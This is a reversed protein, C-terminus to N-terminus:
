TYKKSDFKKLINSILKIQSSSIDLSHPIMILKKMLNNSNKYDDSMNYCEHGETSNLFFSTSELIRFGITLLRYQKSNELLEVFKTNTINNFMYFPPHSNDDVCYLKIGNKKYENYIFDRRERIYDMNNLIDFMMIHIIGPLPQYNFTKHIRGLYDEHTIFDYCPGKERFRRNHIKNYIEFDTTLLMGGMGCNISKLGGFSSVIYNEKFKLNKNFLTFTYDGILKIKREKCLDVLEHYDKGFYNNFNVYYIVKVNKNLKEKIKDIDIFNNKQDVDVLTLKLKFFAAILMISHHSFSAAIIEDGVNFNFEYFLNFLSARCSMALNCYLDKKFNPNCKQFTKVIKDQTENVYIEYGAFNPSIDNDKSIQNLNELNFIVDGFDTRNLKIDIKSM